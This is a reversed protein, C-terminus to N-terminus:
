DRYPTRSLVDFFLRKFFPQCTPLEVKGNGIFHVIRAASPPLDTGRNWMPDLAKWRGHLVVNLGYQDYQPWKQQALLHDKNERCTNLVRQSLMETRWHILDMVLVGSNFYPADPDLRLEKWNTVADRICPLYDRVAAVPYDELPTAWLTSLEDLVMTDADLYIARQHHPLLFPALLRLYHPSCTEFELPAEIKRLLEVNPEIWHLRHHPPVLTELGRQAHQSIGRHVITIELPASVSGNEGMTTLLCALYPLYKENAATVVQVLQESTQTTM